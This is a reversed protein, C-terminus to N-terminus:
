CSSVRKTFSVIHQYGGYRSKKNSYQGKSRGTRQIKAMNLCKNGCKEIDLVGLIVSKAM